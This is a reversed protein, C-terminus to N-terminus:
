NQEPKKLWKDINELSLSHFVNYLNSLIVKLFQDTNINGKFNQSSTTDIWVNQLIRDIVNVGGLKMIAESPIRSYLEQRLYVYVRETYASAFNINGKSDITYTNDIKPTQGAISEAIQNNTETDSIPTSLKEPLTSDERIAIKANQTISLEYASNAFEELVKNLSYKAPISVGFIYSNLNDLCLQQAQKLINQIESKSLNTFQQTLYKEVHISFIEIDQKVLEKNSTLTASAKQLINMVNKLEIEEPTLFYNATGLLLPEKTISLTDVIQTKDNSHSQTFSSNQLALDVENLLKNVYTKVTTVRDNIVSDRVSILSSLETNERTVVFTNNVVQTMLYNLQKEVLEKDYKEGAAELKSKIYQHLQDKLTSLSDFINEYKANPDPVDDTETRIDISNGVKGLLIDNISPKSEKLWDSVETNLNPIVSFDFAGDRDDMGSYDVTPTEEEAAIPPTVSPEPAVPVTPTEISTNSSQFKNPNVTPAGPTQAPTPAGPNIPPKPTSQSYYKITYNTGNYTYKVTFGKSNESMQYPINYTDFEELAEKDGKGLRENIKEVDFEKTEEITVRYVEANKAKNIQTTDNTQPAIKAFAKMMNNLNKM